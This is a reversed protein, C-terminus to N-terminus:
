SALELFAHFAHKEAQLILRFEMLSLTSSIMIQVKTNDAQPSNAVMAGICSCLNLLELNLAAEPRSRGIQDSFFSQSTTTRAV